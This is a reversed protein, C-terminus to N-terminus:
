TLVPPVYAPWSLNSLGRSQATISTPPSGLNTMLSLLKELILNWLWNLLLLLLAIWEMKRCFFISLAAWGKAAAWPACADCILASPVLKSASCARMICVSQPGKPRLCTFCIRGRPIKFWRDKPSFAFFESCDSLEHDHAQLPCPFKYRSVQSIWLNILPPPSSLDVCELGRVHESRDTKSGRVGASASGAKAILRKVDKTKEESGGETVSSKSVTIETSVTPAHSSPILQPAGHLIQSQNLLFSLQSDSCARLNDLVDRIVLLGDHNNSVRMEM